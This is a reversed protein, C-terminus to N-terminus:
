EVTILQNVSHHPVDQNTAVIVVADRARQMLIETLRAKASPSLHEYPEDLLLCNAPARLASWLILRKAEGTSLATLLASEPVDPLFPDTGALLADAGNVIRHHLYLWSRVTADQPAGMTPAYYVSPGLNHRAVSGTASARGALVRLLSSKGAGNEGTIWTLEGARATFTLDRVLARGRRVITLRDVQLQSAPFSNM